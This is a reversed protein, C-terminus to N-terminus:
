FFTPDASGLAVLYTADHSNGLNLSDYLSSAPKLTSVAGTTLGGNGDTTIKGTDLSTKMGGAVLFTGPSAAGNPSFTVNNTLFRVGALYNAGSRPGIDIEQTGPSAATALWLRSTAGAFAAATNDSFLLFGQQFDAIQNASSPTGNAIFKQATLTNAITVPQDAMVGTLLDRFDNWWSAQVQNNPTPSGGVFKGNVRVTLPM